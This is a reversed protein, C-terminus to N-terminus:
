KAPIQHLYKKQFVEAPIPRDFFYGQGYACGANSLADIQSRNEVGEAVCIMGCTHCISVLDRILMQCRVNSTLDAILSRDLKVSDFKVNTFISLNAYQSGFDDLSFRIGYARFQEMVEALSRSDVSGASETVEVELMGPPLLPYRSQIALVSAPAAPDFLTFRSFNVSMPVVQLGQERWSDMLALTRELVFLDLERVDGSQELERIFRDPMVLNGEQDVGRVLAEAGILKGTTMHVKPQLYVTFRGLRIAEEATHVDPGLAFVEARPVAEVQECRMITKAEGVLTKGNFVGEAWTYGIRLDKPYRRQLATRLRNCRGMFVQRTTDPCLVVFEADWTRFLFSHGFIDALTKSVYWLLRSGYEFGLSSNITSLGPVDLCVAGMSSYLDSNLSYIVNLYSRLNPLESLFVGPEEESVQIHEQFRKREGLIHPLLTSFLAADAPHERANEICLFGEIVGEEMLPFTTFHWPEAPAADPKPKAFQLSRSLFVPSREELCRQLIPFREVPMGSVAQQISAKSSGTWEYPMTVVHHDEALTLVYVRDARYYAGIYSLVSRISSQLSNSSLMSSVCQLAVDKERESLPRSMEAQHVTIQDLEGSSQLESWAWDEEEEQYFTVTDAPCNRSLQCIQVCQAIMNVYSNQGQRAHTVGAVFRLSDMDMTNAQTLRVFSFAAELMTKIRTKAYIDPFFVILKDRNYQGVVCDPGLGVSLATFVCRRKDNMDDGGLVCLQELGALKIVCLACDSRKEKGLLSEVLARATARDYLGTVPDRAMHIGLELEWQHRKHEQLLYSYLRVHQSVPDEMLIAVHTVWRIDGGADVRRYETWLWRDGQHFRELLWNRDYYGAVAQRDDQSFVKEMGKSLVRSCPVNAVRGSQDKGELWLSTVTDLTLDAQIGVILYATLHEPLLRRPLMKAQQGAPDESLREIIGVAKVVRGADDCLLRYSMAAWGYCGTDQHQVVFNGYGQTRGELMQQAFELFRPVSNPHIWGSSILSKPFTGQHWIPSGGNRDNCSFLTVKKAPIDVEWMGQTTQEFASQLRENIEQLRQESEKFQSIDTATVLMVPRANGYEIRAARIHWWFWNKRDGSVRHVHDVPQSAEFGKRLAEELGPVDDPHVVHDLTRPLDYNQPEVGIIRCFSPSVYILRIPEGMDLLAVGSDLNELLGSIPITSVPLFTEASQQLGHSYKVYYGHKGNKKAKYLALDASQYLNEFRLGQGVAMHIGVSATLTVSASSGLSLQLRQCIEQGKRQVLKETIGGSLFVIFEDGGLRGVIDTARFMGSLIQASQRIAQDGAQHGLTDNVQKFNDLDVIFMACTEEPGAQELRQNIYAETTARNLLGSLSDKAAREQLEEFQRRLSRDFQGNTEQM